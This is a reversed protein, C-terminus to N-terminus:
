RAYDGLLNEAPYRHEEFSIRSASGPQTCDAQPSRKGENATHGCAALCRLLEGRRPRRRLSRQRYTGASGLRSHDAATVPCHEIPATWRRPNVLRRTTTGWVNGVRDRIWRERGSKKKAMGQLRSRRGTPEVLDKPDQSLHILAIHQPDMCFQRVLRAIQLQRSAIARPDTSYQDRASEINWRGTTPVESKAPANPPDFKTELVDLPLVCFDKPHPPASLLPAHDHAM